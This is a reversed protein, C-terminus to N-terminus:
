VKGIPNESGFYKKAAKESIVASNNGSFASSQSSNILPLDFLTFFNKDVYAVQKGDERFRNTGIKIVPQYTNKIRCVEKVEPFNRKLDEALVVPTVLQYQKDADKALWEFIGKSKGTDPKEWTKTAEIRYL